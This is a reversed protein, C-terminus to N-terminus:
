DGEKLLEAIIERVRSHAHELGKGTEIVYDAKSRKDADPMQRALISEFKEVSMGERALVRERQMKAPASVVIIRDVNAGGSTEFLLPIDLVVIPENAAVADKMFQRQLLGIKPYVIQGMTKIAEDDGLIRKSLLERDVAGDRTVGPFAEELPEVASGGKAYVEHVAADADYVPVGEERFMRTTESKGMGISGTLGLILM